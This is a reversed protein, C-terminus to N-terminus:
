TSARKHERQGSHQRPRTADPGIVYSKDGTWTVSTAGEGDPEVIAVLAELRRRAATRRGGSPRHKLGLELDGLVDRVAALLADHDAKLQWWSEKWAQEAAHATDANHRAADREYEIRECRRRLEAATELTEGLEARVADLAATAKREAHLVREGAHATAATVRQEADAVRATAQEVVKAATTGITEDITDLRDVVPALAADLRREMRRPRIM